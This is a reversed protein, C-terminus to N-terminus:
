HPPANGNRGGGDTSPNNAWPPPGSQGWGNGQGSPSAAHASTLSIVEMAPVAWVLTGGVVAGRKLLQRRNLGAAGTGSDDTVTGWREPWRM